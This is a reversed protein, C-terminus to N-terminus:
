SEQRARREQEKHMEILREERAERLYKSEKPTLAKIEDLTLQGKFLELM